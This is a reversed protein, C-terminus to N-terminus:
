KYALICARTKLRSEEHIEVEACHEGVFCTCHVAGTDSLQQELRVNHEVLRDIEAAAEQLQQSSFVLQAQARAQWHMLVRLTDCGLKIITHTCRVPTIGQLRAAAFCLATHRHRFM